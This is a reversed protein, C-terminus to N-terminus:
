KVKKYLFFLILLAQVPIGILFMMWLMEPPSPVLTIISIYVVTIVTWTLFSSIVLNSITKGWYSSMILLVINTIPVAFLFFLWNDKVSPLLTSSFIFLATALLWVVATALMALILRKKPLTKLSSIKEKKPESILQDITVGYIDALNKLVYLDPVAEAREWKSVAKDSYNIKEALELQTLKHMKRLACLNKALNEKIDM